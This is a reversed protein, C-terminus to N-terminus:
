KVTKGYMESYHWFNGRTPILMWKRKVERTDKYRLHPLGRPRQVEPIQLYLVQRPLRDTTIRLLHGTWRLNKRILRDEMYHLRERKFVKINIVKDQWKIKVISRMINHRMMFAHLKKVADAWYLSTSLIIARYIKGKVRISM